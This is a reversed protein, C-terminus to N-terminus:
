TFFVFPTKILKVTELYFVFKKPYTEVDTYLLNSISHSMSTVFFCIHMEFFFYSESLFLILILTKRRNCVYIDVEDEQFLKKEEKQQM